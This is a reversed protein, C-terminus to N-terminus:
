GSDGWFRARDKVQGSGQLGKALSLGSLLGSKSLWAETLASCLITQSLGGRSAM